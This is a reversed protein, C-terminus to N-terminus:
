TLEGQYELLREVPRYGLAENVDIMWSNEAANWTNISRRLEPMARQVAIHNAAKIALGLRHGRHEPLILTTWQYAHDADQDAAPVALMTNGALRGDPAIAVTSFVRRRMAKSRAEEDRVRQADYKQQEFELSGAPAEVSLLGTLEAFDGVYQEPCAGEWSGVTYGDRDPETSALLAALRPMPIPLDLQRRVDVLRSTFGFSEAFHMGPSASDPDLPATINAIASTRGEEALEARLRRFIATGIGRRRQEPLVQADVEALDLNDRTPLGAEGAGVVTGDEVAALLLYRSPNNPGRYLAKLEDLGWIVPQPSDHRQAVSVVGHWAGLAADDWPDVPRIDM